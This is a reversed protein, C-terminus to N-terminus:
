QSIVGVYKQKFIIMKPGIVKRSEGSLIDEKIDIIQNVLSAATDLDIGGSEIKEEIIEQLDYLLFVIYERAKGVKDSREENLNANTFGAMRKFCKDKSRGSLDYCEQVSIYLSRCGEKDILGRCAEPFRANPDTENLNDENLLRCKVREERRSSIECNIKQSTSTSTPASASTNTPATTSTTMNLRIATINEGARLCVYRVDDIRTKVGEKCDCNSAKPFKDCTVTIIGGGGSSSSSGGGSTSGSSSTSGGGGGGVAYISYSALLLSLFVALSLMVWIDRKM